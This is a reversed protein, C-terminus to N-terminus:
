SLISPAILLTSDDRSPDRGVGDNLSIERATTVAIFLLNPRPGTEALAYM